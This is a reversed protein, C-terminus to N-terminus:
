PMIPEYGLDRLLQAIVTAGEVSPHIKDEQTYGKAVPDDLHDKGNWADFVNAIPVGMEDAAQHIAKNYTEWCEVCVDFAGDPQCASVLRPNYADIARIITPKGQRIEFIITYIEKLDAIYKSFSDMSCNNVYCQSFSTGCNFDFPNSPDLSDEPNGYIVIVESDAIRERLKDLDFNSTNKEKLGQLIRGASLGGVWSDFVNVEVDNDEAIYQGYIEAVGWGSSDTVWLLDWTDEQIKLGEGSIQSSRTQCGTLLVVVFTILSLGVSWFINVKMIREKKM